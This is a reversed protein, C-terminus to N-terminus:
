RERRSREEEERVLAYKTKRFEPDVLDPTAWFELRGSAAEGRLQILQRGFAFRVKADAPVTVRRDASKPFLILLWLKSDKKLAATPGSEDFTLTGPQQEGNILLRWTGALTGPKPKGLRAKLMQIDAEAMKRIAELRARRQGNAEGNQIEKAIQAEAFALIAEMENLLRRAENDDYGTRDVQRKASAYNRELSEVIKDRGDINPPGPRTEPRNEVPVAIMPEVTPVTDGTGPPDERLNKDILYFAIFPERDEATDDPGFVDLPAIHQLAASISHADTELRAPYYYIKRTTNRQAEVNVNVPKYLHLTVQYTADLLRKARRADDLRSPHHFIRVTTLSPNKQTTSWKQTAPSLFEEIKQGIPNGNAGQRYYWRSGDTRRDQWNLDSKSEEYSLAGLVVEKTESITQGQENSVVTVITTTGNSTTVVRDTQPTSTGPFFTTRTFRTSGNTHNEFITVDGTAKNEEVIESPTPVLRWGTQAMVAVVLILTVVLSHVATNLSFSKSRM